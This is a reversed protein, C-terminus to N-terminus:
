GTIYFVSTAGHRLLKRKTYIYIQSLQSAPNKKESVCKLWNNSILLEFADTMKENQSIELSLVM